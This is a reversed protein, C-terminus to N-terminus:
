FSLLEGGWSSSSSTTKDILRGWGSTRNAPPLWSADPGPDAARRRSRWRCYFTRASPEPHSVRQLTAATCWRPQPEPWLSPSCLSWWRGTLAAGISVAAPVRVRLWVYASKWMYSIQKKYANVLRPSLFSGLLHSQSSFSLASSTVQWYCWWSQRWDYYYHLM